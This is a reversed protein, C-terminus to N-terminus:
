TTVNDINASIIFSLITFQKYNDTPKSQNNIDVLSAMNETTRNNLQENNNVLWIIKYTYYSFNIEEKKKQRIKHCNIKPM